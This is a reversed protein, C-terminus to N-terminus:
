GELGGAIAKWQEAVARMYQNAKAETESASEQPAGTQFKGNLADILTGTTTFRKVKSQGALQGPSLGAEHLENQISDFTAQTYPSEKHRMLIGTLTDHQQETLVYGGPEVPVTQAESLYRQAAPSLDLFYAESSARADPQSSGGRSLAQLIAERMLEASATRDGHSPTGGQQPSGSGTPLQYYGGGAPAGSITSM